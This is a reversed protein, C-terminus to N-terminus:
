EWVRVLQAKLEARERAYEREAMQGAAYENDLEAIAQLLDEKSATKDAGAPNRRGFRWWVGAGVLVLAVAGLGIALNTSNTPALAGPAAASASAGGPAGSLNFALTDGAALNDRIYNQFSVGQFDQQGQSQLNDGSVQVKLDSVLLNAEALPYLTKQAFQLQGTYPLDYSILIQATSTGPLVPLTEGLNDGTIVYDQGEVEDKVAINTAGPPLTMEFTKSDNDTAITRDGLNSLIYLQGITLLQDSKFDVFMHLRDVRLAATANTKDYVHVPIELTDKGTEFAAVDSSYTIDNYQATLLFQRGSKYPVATFAFAGDASATATLTTALTFSGNVTDFGHLNVSLGAPLTAGGTGNIVQGSVTGQKEPIPAGPAAYEYSFARVYDTVAWRDAEALQAFTHQPKTLANFLEQQSLKVMQPLSTLDPISKGAAEPGDGKGTASHCAVCNATYIAQGADIENPPTSLTYLFAIANWREAEPLQDAWPPMLKDLRGETITKFWQAPSSARALDPSSFDPLPGGGQALVQASRTGDGKGTAGHCEACHDAFIVSGEAASPLTLPFVNSVDVPAVTPQNAAPSQATIEAPPPNNVSVSSSGPPPTVDGALSCSSIFIGFGLLLIGLLYTVNGAHRANDRPLCSRRLFSNKM